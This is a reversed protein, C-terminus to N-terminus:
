NGIPDPLIGESLDDSTIVSAYITYTDESTVSTYIVSIKTGARLTFTGTM